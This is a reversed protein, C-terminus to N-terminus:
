WSRPRQRARLPKSLGDGGTLREFNTIKRSRARLRLWIEYPQRCIQCLNRSAICQYSRVKSYHEGILAGRGDSLRYLHLFRRGLEGRYKTFGARVTAVLAVAAEPQNATLESHFM